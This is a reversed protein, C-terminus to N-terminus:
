HPNFLNEVAMVDYTGAHDGLHHIQTQKERKAYQERFEFPFETPHQNRILSWNNHDMVRRDLKHAIHHKGSAFGHNKLFRYEPDPSGSSTWRYCKIRHQKM